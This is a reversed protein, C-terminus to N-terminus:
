HPQRVDIMMIKHHCFRVEYIGDEETLTLGGPYGRFAQSVAVVHGWEM